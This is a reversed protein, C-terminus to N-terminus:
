DSDSSIHGRRRLRKQHPFPARALQTLFLYYVLMAQSGLAWLGVQAPPAPDDEVLLIDDDDNSQELQM